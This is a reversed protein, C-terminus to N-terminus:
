KFILNDQETLIVNFSNKKSNSSTKFYNTMNNNKFSIILPKLVIKKEKIRQKYTKTNINVSNNNVDKFKNKYKNITIRPLKNEINQSDKQSFFNKHNKLSLINNINNIAIDKKNISNTTTFSTTKNFFNKVISLDQNKPTECSKLRNDIEKLSLSDKGIKIITTEMIRNSIDNENKIENEKTKQKKVSSFISKGEQASNFLANIFNYKDLNLHIKKKKKSKIKKISKNKNDEVSSNNLSNRKGFNLNNNTSNMNRSINLKITAKQLSMFNQNKIEENESSKFYYNLSKPECKNKYYRGFPRKAGTQGKILNKESVETGFFNEKIKYNLQNIYNKKIMHLRKITTILKSEILNYYSSHCNKENTIINNLMDNSIEFIKAEKSIVTCTCLYNNKLFFEELGLTDCYSSTFLEFKYKTNLKEKMIFNQHRIDTITKDDIYNEKIDKLESQSIKINPNNTLKDYYYKILNYLEFISAIIELKLDGEKVFYVSTVKAKQKYIIDDKAKSLLKFSSFYNKNFIITSIDNFFFNRCIFIVDYSKLRRNNEYLVAKYIDNKLSLIFCDEECRISANRKNTTEDLATEGFFSGPKLYMFDEYKFITFKHKINEFIHPNSYLIESYDKESSIINDFYDKLDKDLYTSGNIIEEIHRYVGLSNLNYDEFSLNFLKFRQKVFNMKFQCAKILRFIDNKLKLIFYAKVFKFLDGILGIDIYNKNLRKLNDIIETENNKILNSLYQMFEDYTLEIHYEIPKLINLSGILLFYCNDGTENMKVVFQNKKYKEILANDALKSIISNIYIETSKEKEEEIDNKNGKKHKNKEKNIQKEKEEFFKTIKEILDSKRFFNELATKVDCTRKSKTKCQEICKNILFYEDEMNIPNQEKEKILESNKSNYIDTQDLSIKNSIKKSFLSLFRKSESNDSITKIPPYVQINENIEETKNTIVEM